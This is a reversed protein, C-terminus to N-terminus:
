LRRIDKVYSYFLSGQVTKAAVYTAFCEVGLTIAGALAPNVNRASRTCM